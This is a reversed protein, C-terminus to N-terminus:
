VEAATHRLAQQLQEALEAPALEGACRAVEVMVEALSNECRVVEATQLEAPREDSDDALYLGNAAIDQAIAVLRRLLQAVVDHRRAPARVTM